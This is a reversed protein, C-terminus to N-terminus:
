MIVPAAIPDRPKQGDLPKAILRLRRPGDSERVVFGLPATQRSWRLTLSRRNRLARRGRWANITLAGITKGNRFRFGVRPRSDAREDTSREPDKIPVLWFVDKEGPKLPGLFAVDDGETKEHLPEGMENLIDAESMNLHRSGRTLSEWRRQNTEYKWESVALKEREIRRDPSLLVITGVIIPTGVIAIAVSWLVIKLKAKKGLDVTREM